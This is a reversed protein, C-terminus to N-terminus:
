CRRGGQCPCRARSGLIRRCRVCRGPRRRDLGISSRGEDVLDGQRGVALADGDHRLVAVVLQQDIVIDSVLGRGADGDALGLHAVQEPAVVVVDNKFGGLRGRQLAKGAVLVFEIKDTAQGQGRALDHGQKGLLFTEVIDDHPVHMADLDIAGIANCCGIIAHFACVGQAKEAKTKVQRAAVQDILCGAVGGVKDYRGFPPQDGITVVILHM